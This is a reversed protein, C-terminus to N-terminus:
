NPPPCPTTPDTAFPCCAQVTRNQNLVVTTATAVDHTASVDGTTGVWYGWVFTANAPGGTLNVTTGAPFSLNQVATTNATGGNVAVSCWSLYNELKLSFTAGADVDPQADAVADNPADKPADKAADKVTGADKGTSSDVGPIGSDSGGASDTGSASDSSTSTETTGSADPARTPKDVTEEESCAGFSVLVATVALTAVLTRM